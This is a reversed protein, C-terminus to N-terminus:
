EREQERLKHNKHTEDSIQRQNEFVALRQGEDGADGETLGFQKATL